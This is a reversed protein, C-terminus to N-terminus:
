IINNLARQMNVVLGKSTGCIMVSFELQPVRLLLALATTVGTDDSTTWTSILILFQVYWNQVSQFTLECTDWGEPDSVPANNDWYHSAARCVQLAGELM